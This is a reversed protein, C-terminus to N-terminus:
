SISDFPITFVKDPIWRYIDRAAQQEALEFSLGENLSALEEMASEGDNKIEKLLPTAPKILSKLFEPDQRSSVFGGKIESKRDNIYRNIVDLTRPSVFSNFRGKFAELYELSERDETGNVYGSERLSCYACVLPGKGDRRGLM